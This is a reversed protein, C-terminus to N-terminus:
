GKALEESKEEKSEVKEEIPKEEVPKEEVAEVKVEEPQPEGAEVKVPAKPAAPEEVVKKSPKLKIKIKDGEVLNRAVLLNNVTPSMQAGKSLWHKVRDVKANVKNKHPDYSGLLELYEGKARETHEKVVLRFFAQGRKGVRQLRIKLM